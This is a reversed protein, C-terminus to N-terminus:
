DLVTDTLTGAKIAFIKDHLYLVQYSSNSQNCAISANASAPLTKTLSSGLWAISYNASDLVVRGQDKAGGVQLQCTTTSGAVANSLLSVHATLLWSGSPISVSAIAARTESTSVAGADDSYAGIVTPTGSGTTTFTGGVHGYKLTGVKMASIASGRVSWYASSDKCHISVVAPSTLTLIGELGITRGATNEFDQIFSDATTSGSSLTCDVRDGDHGGLGWASAQVLWTGAPLSSDQVDHVATDFYLRTGPSQAYYATPAGTGYTVDGNTLQGVEIAILHVDRILVEGTWATSNCQLVVSGKKAFHHALQLEMAGLSGVGSNTPDTRDNYYDGGAVLQCYTALASYISPEITATATILWNGAPVSMKAVTGNVSNGSVDIAGDRHVAIVAPGASTAVADTPLAVAALGIVTILFGFTRFSRHLM